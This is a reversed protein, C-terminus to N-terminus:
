VVPFMASVSFDTLQPLFLVCAVVTLSLSTTVPVALPQEAKAASYFSGCLQRGLTQKWM